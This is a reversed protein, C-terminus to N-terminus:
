RNSDWRHKERDPQLGLPKVPDLHPVGQIRFAPLGWSSESDIRKGFFVSYVTVLVFIAGGVIAAMGSIGVLGMLTYASAPYDFGLAADSFAM